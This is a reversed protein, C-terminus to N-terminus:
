SELERHVRADAVLMAAFIAMAIHLPQTISLSLVGGNARYGEVKLMHWNQDIENVEVVTFRADGEYQEAREATMVDTTFREVKNEFLLYVTSKRTIPM